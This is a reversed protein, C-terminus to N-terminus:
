SDAPKEVRNGSRIDARALFRLDPLDSGALEWGEQVAIIADGSEDAKTGHTGALGLDQSSPEKALDKLKAITRQASHSRRALAQTNNPRLDKPEAGRSPDDVNPSM